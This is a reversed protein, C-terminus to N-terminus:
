HLLWAILEWYVVVFYFYLYEHFCVICLCKCMKQHLFINSTLNVYGVVRINTEFVSVVADTDFSVNEIVYRVQEEFEQM